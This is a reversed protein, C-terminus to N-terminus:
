LDAESLQRVEIVHFRDWFKKLTAEDMTADRAELALVFRHDTVGDHVLRARKGPFLRTRFFMTFVVGLGGLLVTLEFTVPLYAPLANFPKGGVNLPWDISHIWYQMLIASVLGLVAFLFCVYTLRSSRLGMAHDLGHVAYPTYIDYIEYGSQRTAKTAELIDEESEFIGLILSRDM